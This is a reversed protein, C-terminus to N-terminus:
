PAADEDTEFESPPQVNSALKTVDPDASHNLHELLNRRLERYGSSGRYSAQRSYAVETTPVASALRWDFKALEDCIKRVLGVVNSM